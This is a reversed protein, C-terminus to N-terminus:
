STQNHICPAIYPHGSPFIRSTQNKVDKTKKLYKKQNFQESLIKGTNGAQQLSEQNTTAQYPM